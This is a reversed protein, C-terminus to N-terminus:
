KNSKIARPLKTGLIREMKAIFNNNPVIKGTEYKNVIDTPVGLKQAFDKQSMKKAVRAQMLAIKLNNGVKPLKFEDGEKLPKPGRQGGGNSKHIAPLLHSPKRLVVTEWDQHNAQHSM